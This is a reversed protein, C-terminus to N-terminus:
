VDIRVDIPELDIATLELPDHVNLCGDLLGVDHDEQLGMVLEQSISHNCRRLVHKIGRTLKVTRVDLTESGKM